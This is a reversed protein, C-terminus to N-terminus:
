KGKGGILLGYVKLDYVNGNRALAGPLCEQYRFGMKLIMRELHDTHGVITVVTVKIVRLTHKVFDAVPRILEPTFWQGHYRKDVTIHVAVDLGPYILDSFSIFGIIRKGHFLTFGQRGFHVATFEAFTMDALLPINATVVAHLREWHDPTTWGFRLV